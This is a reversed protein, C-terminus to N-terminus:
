ILTYFIAFFDHIIEIDKFEINKDKEDDKYRLSGCAEAQCSLLIFHVM